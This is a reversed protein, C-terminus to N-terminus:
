KGPLTYPDKSRYYNLFHNYRTVLCPLTLVCTKKTKNTENQFTNTTLMPVVRCPYVRMTKNRADRFFLKGMSMWVFPWPLLSDCAHKLKERKCLLCKRCSPYPVHKKKKERDNDIQREMQGLCTWFRSQWVKICHEVKEDDYRGHKGCMKSWFGIRKCSNRECGCNHAREIRSMWRYCNEFM